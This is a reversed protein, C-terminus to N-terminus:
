KTLFILDYLSDTLRKCVSFCLINILKFIDLIDQINVYLRLVGDPKLKLTKEKVLNQKFVNKFIEHANGPYKM